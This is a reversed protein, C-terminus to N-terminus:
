AAAHARYRCHCRSHWAFIARAIVEKGVGSEGTVLVTIDTPAVQGIVGAIKTAGRQFWAILVFYVSIFIAIDFDDLREIIHALVAPDEPETIELVPHLVAQGGRVEILECLRKAQHAPRTVLM